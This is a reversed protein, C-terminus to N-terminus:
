VSPRMNMWWIGGHRIVAQAPLGRAISAFNQICQDADFCIACVDRRMCTNDNTAALREPNILWDFPQGAAIRAGGSYLRCM